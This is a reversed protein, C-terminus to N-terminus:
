LTLCSHQACEYDPRLPCHRPELSKRFIDAQKTRNLPTTLNVLLLEGYNHKQLHKKLDATLGVDTQEPHDITSTAKRQSARAYNEPHQADPKVENRRSLSRKSSCTGSSHQQSARAYNEPAQSTRSCQMVGHCAENASVLKPRLRTSCLLTSSRVEQM